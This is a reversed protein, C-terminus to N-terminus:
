LAGLRAGSVDARAAVRAMGLEAAAAGAQALLELGRERDGSEIELEGLDCRTRAVLGPADLAAHRELATELQARAADPRGATAELLGLFRRVSGWCGCFATQVLRDAFPELQALLTEAGHADGIAACVEAVCVLGTLRFLSGPLGGFDDAALERYAEEARDREGAELLVLLRGPRWIRGPTGESRVLRDLPAVLEGLRGQEYRVAFLQTFFFARAEPAGAAEAIRLSERAVRESEELRGALQAWVGRWALAAHSYLPQHLERALTELRAHAHKAGDLDALEVLDFIRWHLALAALERAGLQEATDLAEDILRLREPTHEPALLAAHRGMLAAALAGLDQQSRAMTVAQDGLQVPRDDADAIALHEALRGLLRACLPGGSSKLAELAEELRGLYDTDLSTPMYFRGGAGLV